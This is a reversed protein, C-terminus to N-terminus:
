KLTFQTLQYIINLPIEFSHSIEVKKHIYNLFISNTM